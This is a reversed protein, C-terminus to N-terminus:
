DYLLYRVRRDEFSETEFQWGRGSSDTIGDVKGTGALRYLYDNTEAGPTHRLLFSMVRLGTDVPDLAHYDTVRLRIGVSTADEYKPRVARGPMSVPTFRTKEVEVGSLTDQLRALDRENFRTAPSGLLLFPSDTGRGESLSTGEIFCTGLYLYANEFAPLNPSPPFW